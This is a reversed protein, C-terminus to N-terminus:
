QRSRSPDVPAGIERDTPEILYGYTPGRKRTDLVTKPIVFWREQGPRGGCYAVFGVHGPDVWHAWDGFASGTIWDAIHEREYVQRDRAMSEGPKLTEGAMAEYVDPHWNRVTDRATETQDTYADVAGLGLAVYPIAWDCDEEFWARARFGAPLKGREAPAVWIGGHSPTSVSVALLTAGSRFATTNDIRGWPSTHGIRPADTTTTM